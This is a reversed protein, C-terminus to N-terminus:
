VRGLTARLALPWSGDDNVALVNYTEGGHTVRNDTTLAVDHAVTLVWDSYSQQAAAVPNRGGGRSDLRCPVATGGVATGWSETYGGQGDATRALALISCTDPLAVAEIDDRMSILEAATPGDLEGM